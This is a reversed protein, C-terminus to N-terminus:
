GGAARVQEVETTHSETLEPAFADADRAADPAGAEV